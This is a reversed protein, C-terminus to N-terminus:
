LVARAASVATVRGVFCCGTFWWWWAPTGIWSQACQLWEATENLQIRVRVLAAAAAAAHAKVAEDRM